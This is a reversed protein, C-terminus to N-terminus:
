KETDQKGNGMPLLGDTLWRRYNKEAPIFRGGKEERTRRFHHLKPAKQGGKRHGGDATDIEDQLANGGPAVVPFSIIVGIGATAQSFPFYTHPCPLVSSLM